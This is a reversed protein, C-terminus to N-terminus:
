WRAAVHTFNRASMVKTSSWPTRVVFVVVVAVMDLEAWVLVVDEVYVVEETGVGSEAM